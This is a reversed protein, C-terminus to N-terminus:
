GFSRLREVAPPVAALAADVDAATSAFGLSLRLSGFALAREVGMAALVHSPEMAGSACSSAASAYVEVEELLFLLAESEIGDICVHAIGAVKDSRDVPAGAGGPGAVGTEHVGELAAALGDLLRDRWVRTRAVVEDRTAATCRAAEAMAVIGAVNQTGSRRNREQGGGLLRPALEVGDRVVLLGVGKPGGFKHAALSVLDAVATHRTVDLWQFGQVADTHLVAGPAHRRVVAAVEELPQVVGTENNVLMVSVLAVSEDLAAALADLDIVGRGDVPVVRGGRSEVPELVAHHEVASCVVTGGRADHVGLVALNDAETGGATFVIEGPRAGILEALLERADDLARRADRAWAHAGSPNAFRERLFPLMAEVAEPRMPTTAAHDLYAPM